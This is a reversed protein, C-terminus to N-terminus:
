EEPISINYAVLSNFSSSFSVCVGGYLFGNKSCIHKLVSDIFTNLSNKGRYRCFQKHPIDTNLVYIEVEGSLSALTCRAIIYQEFRSILEEECLNHHNPSCLYHFDNIIKKCRWRESHIKKAQQFLQKGVTVHKEM